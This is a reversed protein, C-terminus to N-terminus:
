YLKIGRRILSYNKLMHLAETMVGQFYIINM